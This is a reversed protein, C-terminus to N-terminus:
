GGVGSARIQGQIVLPMKLADVAWRQGQIGGRGFGGPRKAIGTPFGNEKRV